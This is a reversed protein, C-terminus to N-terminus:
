LNHAAAQEDFASREICHSVFSQAVMAVTQAFLNPVQERYNPIAEHYVVDDVLVGKHTIYQGPGVAFKWDVGDKAMQDCSEKFKACNFLKARLDAENRPPHYVGFVAHVEVELPINLERAWHRAAIAFPITAGHGTGGAAGTVIRLRVPSDVLNERRVGREILEKRVFVRNLMAILDRVRVHWAPRDRYASLALLARTIGPISGSEKVSIYKTFAERPLVGDLFSLERSSQLAAVIRRELGATYGIFISEAATPEIVRCGLLAAVEPHLRLPQSRFDAFLRRTGAPPFGIGLRRQMLVDAALGINVGLGGDFFDLRPGWILSPDQYAAPRLIQSTANNTM